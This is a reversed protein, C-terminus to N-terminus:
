GGIGFGAAFGISLFVNLAIAFAVPAFVACVVAAIGLGRGRSTVMAVIGQVLAWIGLVTGVWFSVEGLLVWDRVPSLIGWDFEAVLPRAALEEGVGLGIQYAAISVAITSGIFALIGAILAVLGLTGTKAPPALPGGYAPTTAPREVPAAFVPSASGPAAYPPQQPPAPVPHQPAAQAPHQPTFPYGAYSRPPPYASPEPYSPAPYPQTHAYAPAHPYPPAQPYAPPAFGDPAPPLPVTEAADPSPGPSSAADAGARPPLPPRPPIPDSM